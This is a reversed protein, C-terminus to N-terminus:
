LVSKITKVYPMLHSTTNIPRQGQWCVTASYLNVQLAVFGGALKKFNLRIALVQGRLNPFTLKLNEGLNLILAAPNRGGANGKQNQQIFEVESSRLSDQHPQQVVSM